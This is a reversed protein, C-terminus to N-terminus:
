QENSQYSKHKKHRNCSQHKQMYPVIDLVFSCILPESSWFFSNLLLIICIIVIHKIIFIFALIWVFILVANFNYLSLLIINKRWYFVKFWLSVVNYFSVNFDYILILYNCLIFFFLLQYLIHNLNNFRLTM